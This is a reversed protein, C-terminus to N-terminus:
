KKRGKARANERAEAAAIIRDAEREWRAAERHSRARLVKHGCRIVKAIEWPTLADHKSAPQM